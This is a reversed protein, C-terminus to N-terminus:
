FLKGTVAAFVPLTVQKTTPRALPCYSACLSKDGNSSQDFPSGLPLLDEFRLAGSPYLPAEKELESPSPLDLRRIKLSSFEKFILRRCSRRHRFPRAMGGSCSAVLQWNAFLPKRLLFPPTQMLLVYTPSAILEVINSPSQTIERFTSETSSALLLSEPSITEQKLGLWTAVISASRVRKPISTSTGSDAGFTVKSGPSERRTREARNERRRFSPSLYERSSTSEAFKSNTSYQTNAPDRSSIM